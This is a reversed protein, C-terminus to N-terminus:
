FLRPRSRRPRWIKARRQERETSEVFSRIQAAYREDEQALAAVHGAVWEDIASSARVYEDSVKGDVEQGPRFAMWLDRRLRTPIRLWHRRCGWMRPPVSEDCEPWRCRM